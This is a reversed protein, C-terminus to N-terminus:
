KVSALKELLEAITELHHGYTMSEAYARRQKMREHSNLESLESIVNDLNDAVNEGPQLMVLLNAIPTLDPMHPSLVVRGSYLYELIKHSNVTEKPYRMTDYAILLIDMGSLKEAIQESPIVGHFIVNSAARLGKMIDRPVERADGFAGEWPGILHLTVMPHEAAIRILINHDLSRIALNGLYGIDVRGPKSNWALPINSPPPMLGHPVHLTPANLHTIGDLMGRSVALVVDANRASGPLDKPHPLDMVHLIRLSAHTRDTLDRYRYLDFNWLVHFGGGCAKAVKALHREQLYKRVVDPFHRAGRILVPAEVLAPTTESAASCQFSGAHLPGLFYVQAGSRMLSQAYHHKSLRMTGWQEPAVILVRKGRWTWPGTDSSNM